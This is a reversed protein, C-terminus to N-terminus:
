YDICLQVEIQSLFAQISDIETPLTICELNIIGKHILNEWLNRLVHICINVHLLPLIHLITLSHEKVGMLLKAAEAM